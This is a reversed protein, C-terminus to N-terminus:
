ANHEAGYDQALSKASATAEGIVYEIEGLFGWCSDLNEGQPSEVIYGYCQGTIHFDYERVEGVMSSMAQEFVKKTVRKVGYNKRIEARTQYIFGVQGSDWPCSFANTSMTIGSHDYLYLPLVIGGEKLVKDSLEKAEEVSMSHEDGLKYRRHFCIMHGYQDYDKRPNPGDTDYLIRVTLGDVKFKEVNDM